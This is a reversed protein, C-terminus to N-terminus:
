NLEFFYIEGSFEATGSVFKAEISTDGNEIIVVPDAEVVASRRIAKSVESYFREVAINIDDENEYDIRLSEGEERLEASVEVVYLAKPNYM